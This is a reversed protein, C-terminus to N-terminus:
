KVIMVNFQKDLSHIPRWCSPDVRANGAFTPIPFRLKRVVTQVPSKGGLGLMM